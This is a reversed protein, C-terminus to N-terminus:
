MLALKVAQAISRANKFSIMNPFGLKKAEAGRKDLNRVTRLEGLLGVEGILVSNQKINIGKFSSVIALCIGLDAAPEDLHLGGTVNVFIDFDFLPLGLRKQLVATLLQLRNNDVGSGTRRPIPLTTKTVLAQIELLIPRIGTLICVVASGPADVRQELFIRSPNKVEKMGNGDM